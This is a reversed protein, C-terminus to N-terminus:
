DRRLELKQPPHAGPPPVPFCGVLLSCLGITTLALAKPFHTLKVSDVYPAAM